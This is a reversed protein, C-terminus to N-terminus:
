RGIFRYGQRPVTELYKPAEPDDALAARLKRVATNLAADVDVVTHPWLRAALGERTVLEGPRQLLAELVQLPQEQLRVPQDGRYLELPARRLTWGDFRAVLRASEGAM